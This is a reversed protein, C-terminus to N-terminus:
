RTIGRKSNVIFDVFSNVNIDSYDRDSGRISNETYEEYDYESPIISPKAQKM